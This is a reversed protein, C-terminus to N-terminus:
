PRTGRYRWVVLQEGAPTTSTYVIDSRCVKILVKPGAGFFPETRVGCEHAGVDPGGDTETPLHDARHSSKVYYAVHRQALFAGADGRQLADLYENSDVIGELQVMPRDLLYGVVGARDGM